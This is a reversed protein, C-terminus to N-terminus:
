LARKAQVIIFPLRLIHLTLIIMWVKRIFGSNVLSWQVRFLHRRSSFKGFSLPPNTMLVMIPWGYAVYNSTILFKLRNLITVIMLSGLWSPTLLFEMTHFVSARNVQKAWQSRRLGYGGYRKFCGLLLKYAFICDTILCICVTEDVHGSSLVILLPSILVNRWFWGLLLKIVNKYSILIIGAEFLVNAFVIM